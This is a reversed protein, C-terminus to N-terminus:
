EERCTHQGCEADWQKIISEDVKWIVIRSINPLFSDGEPDWYCRKQVDVFKGDPLIAVCHGIRSRGNKEKKYILFLAPHREQKMKNIARPLGSEIKEADTVTFSFISKNEIIGVNRFDEFSFNCKTVECEIDVRSLSDLECQLKM